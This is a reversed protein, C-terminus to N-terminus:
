IKHNTSPLRAYLPLCLVHKAIWAITKWDFSFKNKGRNRIYNGLMSFVSPKDGGKSDNLCGPASDSKERNPATKKTERRAAADKETRLFFFLCESSHEGKIDKRKEM